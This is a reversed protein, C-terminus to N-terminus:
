RVQKRAAVGPCHDEVVGLVEHCRRKYIDVYHTTSDAVMNKRFRAKGMLSVAQKMSIWGKTHTALMWEELEKRNMRFTNVALPVQPLPSEPQSPLGDEVMKLISRTSHMFAEITVPSASGVSDQRNQIKKLIDLAKKLALRGSEEARKNDALRESESEPPQVISRSPTQLLFLPDPLDVELNPEGQLRSPRLPPPVTPKDESELNIEALAQKRPRPQLSSWSIDENQNRLYHAEENASPSTSTAATRTSDSADKTNLSSVPQSAVNDSAQTPLEVVMMGHDRGLSYMHKCASGFRKFYPCTCDIIHDKRGAGHNFRVQYVGTTPNSFSTIIFIDKLKFTVIGLLQMMESTYEDAKRKALAQFQSTTQKVFGDLVQIHAWRYDSEIQNTFIHITDDIRNHQKHLYQNKLVRHWAEVYNNTHIGQHTTTRYHFGWYSLRPAWQRRLYNAFPRSVQRWQLWYQIFPHQPNASCYHKPAQLKLDAYVMEVSNAIAIACDSMVLLPELRSEKRLWMLFRSIAAEAASATFAWAIPVGKGTVLDWILVTFLNCKHGDKLFYNDVTNHTSDIMVMNSGHDYLMRRQWPSQFAFIFDKSDKIDVLMHWGNSRLAVNWKRLSLFVNNNRRSEPSARTKILYRVRDYLCALGEPKLTESILNLIDPTKILCSITPWTMGSDVRDTLWKDVQVSIQGNVMQFLSNPDHNHEWFWTVRLSGTKIHNTIFFRARCGCRVSVQHIRRTDEVPKAFGHCPCKYKLKFTCEPHPGSGTQNLVEKRHVIHKKQNWRMALCMLEVFRLADVIGDGPITFCFPSTAFHTSSSSLNCVLRLANPASKAGPPVPVEYISPAPLITSIDSVMPFAEPSATPSFHPTFTFSPSLM